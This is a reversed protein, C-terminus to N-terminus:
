YVTVYCHGLLMIYKFCHTCILPRRISQHSKHSIIIVIEKPEDIPFMCQPSNECTADAPTNQGPPDRRSFCFGQDLNGKNVTTGLKTALAYGGARLQNPINVDAGEATTLVFICHLTKLCIKAM